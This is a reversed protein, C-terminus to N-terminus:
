DDTHTHRHHLDPWHPHNHAQPQHTHWQGAVDNFPHDAHNHRHHPDSHDHPHTHELYGHEHHHSHSDTFMLYLSTVLLLTAVVQHLLFAERLFVISFFLGWFPASAFIMQSRSAGMEQAATIYLVISIGYSFAGVVMGVLILHIAPVHGTLLLGLALNFPGAGLGKVFTSTAPSLGDIKATLNNDIGWCISAIVVLVSGIFGEWGGSFSLIIGSLFVGLNALWTKKGLHERFFLVAIIATAVTELNILLAVSGALTLQLGLLLFIPGLIGGFVVAGVLYFISAQSTENKRKVGMRQKYVVPALVFATGLYLLGALTIPATEGLLAKNLPTSLGFLVASALALLVAKNLPVMKM